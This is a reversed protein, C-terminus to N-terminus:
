VEVTGDPHIFAIVEGDFAAFEESHVQEEPLTRFAREEGDDLTAIVWLKRTSKARQKSLTLLFSPIM